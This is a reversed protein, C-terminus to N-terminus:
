YRTKKFETVVYWGFFSLVLIAVIGNFVALM